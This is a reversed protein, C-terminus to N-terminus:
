GSSKSFPSSLGVGEDGADNRYSHSLGDGKVEAKRYAEEYSPARVLVFEESFLPENDVNASCRM